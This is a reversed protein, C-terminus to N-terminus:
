SPKYANEHNNLKFVLLIIKSKTQILQQPQSQKFLLMSPNRKKQIKQQSEREINSVLINLNHTITSINQIPHRLPM